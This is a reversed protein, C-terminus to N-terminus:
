LGVTCDCVSAGSSLSRHVAHCNNGSLSSWVLWELSPPLAYESLWNHPSISHTISSNYLETFVPLWNTQPDSSNLSFIRYLFVKPFLRHRPKQLQWTHHKHHYKQIHRSFIKIKRQPSGNRRLFISLQYPKPGNRVTRTNIQYNTLIPNTLKKIM